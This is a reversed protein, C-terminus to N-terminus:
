RGTEAIGVVDQGALAPPWACAQIPTPEKFGAFVLKLDSPIDLQGFSLIPIVPTTSHVTVSHKELFAAADAASPASSSTSPAPTTAEVTAAAKKKEKKEKKAKKTELSSTPDSPSGESSDTKSKKKKKKGGESAEASPEDQTSVQERKRKRKESKPQSAEASAPVVMYIDFASTFFSIPRAQSTSTWPKSQSLLRLRTQMKLRM